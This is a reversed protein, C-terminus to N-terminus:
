SKGSVAIKKAEAKAEPRKALAIKLVGKDFSAEIKDQDVTDPLRFSRMVSGFRRESRYYDKKKEETESKKVGKVTLVGDTVTLEVDKEDMGPLEASIEIGDGDESVDFRADILDDRLKSSLLPERIPESRWFEHALSPMRWSRMVDDFLSDMRHRMEILPSFVQEARAEPVKGGETTEVIDKEAM